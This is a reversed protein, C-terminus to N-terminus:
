RRPQLQQMGQRMIKILLCHLVTQFLEFLRHVEYLILINAPTPGGRVATARYLHPPARTRRARNTSPHAVSDTHIALWGPWSLRGDKGLPRRLHTVSIYSLDISLHLRDGRTLSLTSLAPQSVVSVSNLAAGKRPLSYSATSNIRQLIQLLAM